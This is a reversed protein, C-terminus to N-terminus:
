GPQCHDGLQDPPPIFISGPCGIVFTDGHGFVVGYSGGSLTVNGTLRVTASPPNATDNTRVAIAGTETVFSWQVSGAGTLTLYDFSGDGDLFGLGQWGNGRAGMTIPDMQTGEATLVGGDWVQIGIDDEFLVDVGPEITLSGTVRLEQTGGFRLVYASGLDRWTDTDAVGHQFIEIVVEDVLNGSFSNGALLDDVVPADVWAAGLVNGTITNGEFGEPMSPHRVFMGYSGGNRITTNTIEVQSSQGDGCCLVLNAPPGAGIRESGGYEIVVHDLQNGTHMTNVFGLGRWHGPVQQTGTLVIPDTDRGVATLGGGESVLMAMDEEFRIEVGPDLTLWGRVFFAQRDSTQLIRYVAKTWIPSNDIPTPHVTVVDVDNGSLTSSGRVVDEVESAYAWAPGLANRTMENDGAGSIVVDRALFLGYGASERLVSHELTVVGGGELILSADQTNSIGAGGTYEITTYAVINDPYTSFEIALGKWFGRQMTTGTLKIPKAATGEALLGAGGRVRLGLGAEFGVVTGAEITLVASNFILDIEVVYDFCTPDPIWDQWTTNASINATVARPTPCTIALQISGSQSPDTTSTATITVTGTLLTTVLGAGSVTATAPDSSSWTVSQPAGTPQVVATVQITGPLPVPNASATVVVGTVAVTGSGGPGSPSKCAHAFFLLSLGALWVTGDRATRVYSM